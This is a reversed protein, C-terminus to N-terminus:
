PDASYDAGAAIHSHYLCQARPPREGPSKQRRPSGDWASPLCLAARHQENCRRRVDAPPQFLGFTMRGVSFRDDIGFRWVGNRGVDYRFLDRSAGDRFDLLWPLDDCRTDSKARSPKLAASNQLKWQRMELASPGVRAPHVM